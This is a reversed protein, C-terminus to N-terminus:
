SHSPLASFTKVFHSRPINEVGRCDNASTYLQVLPSDPLFHPGLKQIKKHKESIFHNLYYKAAGMYKATIQTVIKAVPHTRNM